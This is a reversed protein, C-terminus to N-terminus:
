GIPRRIVLAGDDAQLEVMANRGRESWGDIVLNVEALRAAATETLRDIGRAREPDFAAPDAAIVHLEDTAARAIDALLNLDYALTPDAIPVGEGELRDLARATAQSTLHLDASITTQVQRPADNLAAALDELAARVEVIAAELGLPDPTQARPSLPNAVM